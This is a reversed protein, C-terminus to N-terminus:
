SRWAFAISRKKLITNDFVVDANNGALAACVHLPLLHEERPHCYRANPAQEWNILKNEIEEYPLNKTCTKILWDQFEDNRTDKGDSLRFFEQMNHFSFGSGIVLIKSNKLLPRLAKGLEIHRQPDLGQILSIQFVPIDANPYMMKLPIFVGHDLGRNTIVESKIGANILLSKSKQALEPAGPCSYTIEYTEAPFGYYDFLLPPNQSGIILPEPEEWHASIVLIAEPNILKRPLAKMFSIMEQHDPDNLLPLPGGGHSLYVINYPEVSM